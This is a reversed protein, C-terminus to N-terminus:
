IKDRASLQVSVFSKETLHPSLCSRLTHWMYSGPAQKASQKAFISFTHCWTSSAVFELHKSNQSQAMCVLYCQIAFSVCSVLHEVFSYMQQHVTWVIIMLHCHKTGACHLLWITSQPAEVLSSTIEATFCLQCTQLKLHQLVGFWPNGINRVTWNPCNFSVSPPCLGIASWFQTRNAWSSRALCAESFLHLFPCLYAHNSM